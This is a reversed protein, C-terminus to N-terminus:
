YKPYLSWAFGSKEDRPEVILYYTYKGAYESKYLELAKSNDVLVTTDGISYKATPKVGSLEKFLKLKGRSKKLSEYQEKTLDMIKEM